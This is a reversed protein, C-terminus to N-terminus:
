RVWVFIAVIIPGLWDMHDYATGHHWAQYFPGYWPMNARKGEGYQRIYDYEFATFERSLFWTVCVYAALDAHGLVACVLVILGTYVSHETLSWLKKLLDIIM